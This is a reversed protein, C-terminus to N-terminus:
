EDQEKRKGMLKNYIEELEELSYGTHQNARLILLDVEDQGYDKILRIAYEGLNGHKYTNCGVCQCHVNM